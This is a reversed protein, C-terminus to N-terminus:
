CQGQPLLGSRSLGTAKPDSGFRVAPFLPPDERQEKFKVPTQHLTYCSGGLRGVMGRPSGLGQESPKKNEGAM